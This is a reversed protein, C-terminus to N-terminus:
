INGYKKKKSILLGIVNNYSSLGKSQRNAKLYQNYIASFTPSINNAKALFFKRIDKLDNQVLTDLEWKHTNTENMMLLEIAAYRYLDLYVSYKFYPNNSQSCSLYGVFNAEDEAAYGLQHAIEHCVIYPALVKPVDVSLQAEATFPNYYGVFGIYHGYKSFISKKVSAKKYNLLNNKMRLSDHLLISEEIINGFSPQPLENRGIAPRITNLKQVLDCVLSEVDEKTYDNKPINLQHTVGIRYYNMGWLIQFFIILWLAKKATQLIYKFFDKRREKSFLIAFFKIGQVLLYGVLIIYLVDGISFSVSGSISRLIYSIYLYIGNSYYKEIVTPFFSILYICLLIILPTLWEKYFIKLLNVQKNHM